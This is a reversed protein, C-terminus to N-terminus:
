REDRNDDPQAGAEGVHASLDSPRGLLDNLWQIDDESLNGHRHSTLALAETPPTEKEVDPQSAPKSPRECMGVTARCREAHEESVRRAETKYWAKMGPPYREDGDISAESRAIAAGCHPCATFSTGDRSALPQMNETSDSMTSSECTVSGAWQPLEM